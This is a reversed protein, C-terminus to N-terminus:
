PPPDQASGAPEADTVASARLTLPPLLRAFLGFPRVRTTVSVAVLPGSPQLRVTALPGAARRVAAEVAFPQEGRAVARAGDRAAELCRAQAVVASVLWVAAALLLALVPLLVATEATVM